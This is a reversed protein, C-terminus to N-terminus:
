NRVAKSSTGAISHRDEVEYATHEPRWSGDVRRHTFLGRGIGVKFHQKRWWRSNLPNEPTQFGNCTRSSPHTDIYPMLVDLFFDRHFLISQNTWNICSSDIAYTEDQVRSILQPFLAEPHHELYVSRGIFKKAKDPRMFRRVSKVSSSSHDLKEIATFAPHIDMTPYLRTYKELLFGEGFQWRHRLRMVDITKSELLELACALQQQAEERSEVLPCDNELYVVYDTKAREVAQRMGEAIGINAGGEARLGYADAIRRDEESIDQFFILCDDFLSFLDRARYSELANILTDHARWSLMALGVTFPKGDSLKSGPHTM